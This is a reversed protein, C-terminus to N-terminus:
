QQHGLPLPFVQFTVQTHQNASLRLKQLIYKPKSLSIAQGSSVFQRVNDFLTKVDKKLGM